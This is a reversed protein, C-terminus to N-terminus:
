TRKSPGSSPVAEVRTSAHTGRPLSREDIWYCTATEAGPFDLLEGCDFKEGAAEGARDTAEHFQVDLGAGTTTFAADHLYPPEPLEGLQRLKACTIITPSASPRSTTPTATSPRATPNGPSPSPAPTPKASPRPSPDHGHGILIPPPTPALVFTQRIGVTGMQIASLSAGSNV